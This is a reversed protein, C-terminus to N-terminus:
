VLISEMKRSIKVVVLSGEKVGSSPYVLVQSNKGDYDVQMSGSSATVVVNAGGPYREPWVFIETPVKSKTNKIAYQLEFDGSTVNFFMKKAEGAIATTYTRAYGEQFSSSPEPGPWQGANGTKDAGWECLQSVDSHCGRFFNKWEWTTWSQLFADAGDGIDGAAVERGPAHDSETMFAATQLRRAAVDFAEFQFSVSKQPPKYYHYGLVSRNAYDMGGPPATFGAGFDDWTVGMFFLLVDNDVERVAANIQNYLPQLNKADANHPNPFPVMILPDEYFDGAFPENLLEFGLIEPRHAFRSAVRKWMAAFSDGVGNWNSYVAQYAQATERDSEGWGPGKKCRCGQRTPIQPDGGLGKEVYIQSENFPKDYPFPFAFSPIATRRVAWSPIGEGCFHESLGDQHMDLFTYVGYAAALKVINEIENLYSENYQGRIPEVGAWFVGLRLVNLGLKRMWEFDNESMSIDTSFSQSDPHWPPGKVVANTGHFIRERGKSDVFVRHGGPREELSITDLAWVSITACLSFLLLLYIM